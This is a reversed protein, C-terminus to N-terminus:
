HVEFMFTLDYMKGFYFVFKSMKSSFYSYKLINTINYRLKSNLVISNLRLTVIYKSNLGLKTTKM